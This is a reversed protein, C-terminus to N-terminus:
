EIDYATDGLVICAGPPMNLKQLAAHMVDPDPKSHRADQASTEQTFLSSAYPHIIKLLGQLEDPEASTAIALTFGQRHLHQLLEWAQPFAHLEPLYHSLFLAKRRKSIRKGQESDKQLGVAEPLVKDGGMGILPRVKEFSVHYGQEELAQVWAHAHADNSDVLTGDIDLIVGRLQQAM